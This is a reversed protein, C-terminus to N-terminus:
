RNFLGERRPRKQYDFLGWGRGQLVYHRSLIYLGKQRDFLRWGGANRLTTCLNYTYLGRWAEAMFGEVGGGYVGGRRRGVGEVGGGYVGGHRRGIGEVGGGYVRGWVGRWAEARYGGRRRWLGEGM